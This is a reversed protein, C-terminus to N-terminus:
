GDWGAPIKVEGREAEAKRNNFFTTIRSMMSEHLAQERASVSGQAAPV